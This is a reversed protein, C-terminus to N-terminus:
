EEWQRRKGEWQRKQRRWSWFRMKGAGHSNTEVERGMRRAKGGMRDRRGEWETEDERGM